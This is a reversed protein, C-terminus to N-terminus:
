EALRLIYIYTLDSIRFAPFITIITNQFTVGQLRSSIPKELTGAAEMKLTAFPLLSNELLTVYSDLLGYPKVNWVAIIM